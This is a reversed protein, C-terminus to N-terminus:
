RKALHTQLRAIQQPNSVPVLIRQGPVLATRSTMGNAEALANVRELIYEDSNGYKRAISWFTEGQGVTMPVVIPTVHPAASYTQAQKVGAVLGGTVVCAAVAAGLFAAANKRATAGILDKNERLFHKSKAAEIVNTKRGRFTKPENLLVM